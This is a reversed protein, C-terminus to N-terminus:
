SSDKCNSSHVPRKLEQLIKSLAQSPSPAAIVPRGVVLYDAGKRVALSPTLTRKQDHRGSWSPRIGPVVLLLDKGLEKKIIDIEQPSCVIGDMGADRSLRALRLVQAQIGSGLGIDKLDEDQLSTLVTVALLLPRKIREKEAETAAADVARAMMERGGSAHLTMMSVQNRVGVKVAEAVINPIDHLKLDLFVKKGLLQIEKLFAPGEASFLRLGVKFTEVEKLQRVLSLAKERSEVDLAIIIKRALNKRSELM